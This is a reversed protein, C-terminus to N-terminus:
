ATRASKLYPKMWGLGESTGSQPKYECGVWGDYGLRDSDQDGRGPNSVGPQVASHTRSNNLWTCTLGYSRASCM